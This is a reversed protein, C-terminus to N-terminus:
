RGDPRIQRLAGSRGGAARVGGPGPASEAVWPDRVTLPGTSSAAAATTPTHASPAQRDEGCAALGLALVLLVVSRTLLPYPRRCTPAM